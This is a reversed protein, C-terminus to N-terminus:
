KSSYYGEMAKKYGEDEFPYNKMFKLAESYAIGYKRSLYLASIRESLKIGAFMPVVTIIVPPGLKSIAFSRLWRKFDAQIFARDAADTEPTVGPISNIYKKIGIVSGMIGLGAGAIQLSAITVIDKKTLTLPHLTSNVSALFLLFLLIRKM